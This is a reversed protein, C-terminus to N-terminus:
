HEPKGYISFLKLDSSGTNIINHVTNAPIVLGFGSDFEKSKEATVLTGPGYFFFFQDTSHSEEGIEEGPKISMSVLQITGTFLIDRFKSNKQASAELDQLFVETKENLFNKFSM